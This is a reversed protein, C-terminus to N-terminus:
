VLYFIHCLLQLHTYVHLYGRYIIDRGYSSYICSQSHYSGVRSHNNPNRFITVDQIYYNPAVPHPYGDWHNSDFRLPSTM